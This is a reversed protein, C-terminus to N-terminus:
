NTVVITRDVPWYIEHDENPPLEQARWHDVWISAETDGDLVGFAKVRDGLYVFEHPHFVFENVSLGDPPTLMADEPRLVATASDLESHSGPSLYGEVRTGKKSTGVGPSGDRFGTVDLFNAEGLFGAVFRNRPKSYITTPPDVQEVKGNSMVIIRDSLSLAESQDHTVYLVTTGLEHHIRRLEIQMQVRLNKDLASLPEDMLLLVPKHVIARALAVRQQQGGSLQSPRRDVFGALDVVTLAELVHQRAVAGRMGRMKLPFAVNEGVTLHPFLAYGQFVMGLDRKHTPTRTIDRDGLLISGSTPDEFGAVMALTTSKGSGSPGLLTVFEGAAIVMNVDDIASVNGYMKSLNRLELPEPKTKVADVAESSSIVPAPSYKLETSNM